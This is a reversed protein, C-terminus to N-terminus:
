PSYVRAIKIARTDRYGSLYRVERELVQPNLGLPVSKTVKTVFDMWTVPHSVEVVM